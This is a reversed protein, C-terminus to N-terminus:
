RNLKLAFNEGVFSLIEARQSFEVSQVDAKLILVIEEYWPIEGKLVM